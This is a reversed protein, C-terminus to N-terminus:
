GKVREEDIIIRMIITIIIIVTYHSMKSPSLKQQNQPNAIWVFITSNDATVHLNPRAGRM